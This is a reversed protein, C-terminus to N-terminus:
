WNILLIFVDDVYYQTDLVIEVMGTLPNFTFESSRLARNLPSQSFSVSSAGILSADTHTGVLVTSQLAYTFQNGTIVKHTKRASPLPPPTFGATPGTSIKYCNKRM